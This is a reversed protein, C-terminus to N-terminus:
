GGQMGLLKPKPDSVLAKAVMRAEPFPALAQFLVGLVKEFEGNLEINIQQENHVVRPPPPVPQTWGPTEATEKGPGQRLWALPNREHVKIEAALRAQAKAQMIAERFAVFRKNRSSLRPTLGRRMGTDFV